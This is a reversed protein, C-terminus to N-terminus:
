GNFVGRTNANSYLVADAVAETILIKSADTFEGVVGSINFHFTNNIPVVNNQETGNEVGRRLMEGQIVEDYNKAPVVLEDPMLMASISDKGPTGGTALGGDAFKTAAEGISTAFVTALGIGRLTEISAIAPPLLLPPTTAAALLKAQEARIIIDAIAFTKNIAFQAKASNGSIQNISTATAQALGVSANQIDADSKLKQMDRAKSLEADKKIRAEDAKASLDRLKQVAEQHKGELELKRAAAIERLVYEGDLVETLRLASEEYEVEKLVADEADLEAQKQRDAERLLDVTSMYNTESELKKADSAAKNEAEKMVISEHILASEQRAEDIEQMGSITGKNLSELGEKTRTVGSDISNFLQDYGEKILPLNGRMIGVITKGIGTFVDRIFVGLGDFIAGIEDAFYIFGALAAIPAVILAISAALSGVTFGFATLAANAANIAIAGGALATTLGTVATAIALISAATATFEKNDRILELLGNLASGADRISPALFQGINKGIDALIQGTQKIVGGTTEMITKMGEFAVGGESTLSTLVKKFDDISIKGESALKKIGEEPIKLIRSFEETLPIGANKFEKLTQTTVKGTEAVKGFAQALFDIGAGSVASLDGLQQLTPVIDKLEVGFLALKKGAGAVEDFDLGNNQAFQDLEEIAKNAAEASGTLTKFQATVTEVKAAENVFLGISGALAAFAVGSKISISELVETLNESKKKAEDLKDNFDKIEADLKVIIKPTSM